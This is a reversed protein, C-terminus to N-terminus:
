LRKKQWLFFDLIAGEERLTEFLDMLLLVKFIFGWRKRRERQM